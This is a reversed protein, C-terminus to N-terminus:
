LVESLQMEIHKLTFEFTFFCFDFCLCALMIGLSLHKATQQERKASM